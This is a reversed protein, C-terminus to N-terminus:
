SREISNVTVRRLYRYCFSLDGQVKDCCVFIRSVHESFVEGSVAEQSTPTMETNSESSLYYSYYMTLRAESTVLLHFYTNFERRVVRM